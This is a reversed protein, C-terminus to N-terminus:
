HSRNTLRGLLVRARLLALRTLLAYGGMVFAWVVTFAVVGVHEDFIPPPLTYAGDAHYTYHRMPETVSGAAWFVPNVIVVLGLFFEMAEDSWLAFLLGIMLFPLAWCGLAILATKVAARSSKKANISVWLGVANLFAVMVLFTGGVHVLAMTPVTSGLIGSLFLHTLLVAPVFWQRRMAGWFKGMVIERATLPTTMLVDLTRSEREQPISSSSAGCAIALCIVMGIGMLVMNIRHRDDPEEVQLNLYMLFGVIVVSAIIFRVRSQFAPQALERWLVPQDGVERSDKGMVEQEAAGGRPKLASSGAALVQGAPAIPSAGAVDPGSTAQSKAQKRRQRRTLLEVRSGADKLMVRRLRIVLAVFALAAFGLSYLANYWCLNAASTWMRPAEGVLTATAMGLAGPGCCVEILREGITTSLAGKYTAVLFALPVGGQIAIMSVIASSTASFGRAAKASYFLALTCALVASSLVLAAMAVVLELDVGGFVRLALLLPLALLVLIVLQSLGAVLKGGAIQFATLPTTFLAGLTGSRREDCLSGGVITPGILLLTVYEFWLVMATLAPALEQARQMFQLGSEGASEDFFVGVYSIVAIALLILVSLCRVVYTSRRRGAVMVEKQIIPNHLNALLRQPACARALRGLWTARPASRPMASASAPGQSM